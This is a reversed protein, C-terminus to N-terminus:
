DSSYDIRKSPVTASSPLRRNIPLTRAWFPDSRPPVASLAGRAPDPWAAARGTGAGRFLSFHYPVLLVSANGSDAGSPRREVESNSLAARSFSSGSGMSGGADDLAAVGGGTGETGETGSTAGAGGTSNAALSTVASSSLLILIPALSLSTSVARPVGLERIAM